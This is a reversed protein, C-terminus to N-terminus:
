KVGEFIEVKDIFQKMEKDDKLMWVVISASNKLYIVDEQLSGTNTVLIWDEGEKGLRDELMVRLSKIRHFSAVVSKEYTLTVKIDWDSWLFEPEWGSQFKDLTSILEIEKIPKTEEDM